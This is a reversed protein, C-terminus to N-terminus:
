RCVIQKTLRISESSNGIMLNVKGKEVVFQHKEINWYALDEAKLELEVTKTTGVPIMVRKFGKLQKAPREVKSDPFSVYLQVVEEGDRKGTNKVEVSITLVGTVPLISSSLSIKQYDFNTYSLGFGFPYLPKTKAYLYTRGNRIDYDMMPPLDTITKVWTQTTRGAPNFDGFIVDALGNGLEQSNNTVHLIAPINEQSWNIAFPFSSILAVITNPNAKHVIKALDEQELTLAKRDIAERGDSPVPSYKWKPDTGYPHNGICVLVVDAKGAAIAAKDMENSPEYFIEVKDGLANQIGQLVTVAYPPTGSYWDLLVENARPGIVAISRIKNKNLPLLNENKLLVVSKATVSRVFDRIEKKYWPKVTDTVGISAYPTQSRNGDLLGLRLAVYFNGRIARDIDTETLIGKELAEYVSPRYTDLFQSVTAKVIAAAGETLTPYAKHANVLLNLAGGDTCVIGKNGWEKRTVEEIVPNITMPTGNWANYSAMFARSGGETIGKYFPYAYYERFLREDFNSSTSDRGDENSNALFHKMLSASKWYKPHDGQLGQIFAVTMRATLFPDEGFSEETRGWRPDRALDANPARMVMGGRRLQENQTYYRIETAEIDAVKRILETDWTEGLGYAQPFTTTPYANPIGSNGTARIGGWNGPGGLAMGHLGESHGTNPIGLRSVGLNTSLASVKEDLTMLSLLNDLREDDSLSTNQFPYIFQAQVSLSGCLFCFLVLNSIKM